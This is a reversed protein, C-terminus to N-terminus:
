ETNSSFPNDWSVTSFIDLLHWHCSLVSTLIIQRLSFATIIFISMTEFLKSVFSFIFPKLLSIFSILFFCFSFKSLFITVIFFSSSSSFVVSKSVSHSHYCVLSLLSFLWPFPPHMLIFSAIQLVSLFRNKFIFLTEFVQPDIVFGRADM